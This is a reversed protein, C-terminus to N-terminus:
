PSDQAARKKLRDLVKLVDERNKRSTMWAPLRGAMSRNKWGTQEDRSRERLPARVIEELRALHRTNYAWHTHGCCPAQLWLPLSFHGDYAEGSSVVNGPGTKTFGCSACVVKRPAFLDPKGPARAGVTARSGCRPCVVLFEDMFDHLSEGTDQTRM